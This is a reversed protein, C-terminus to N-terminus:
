NTENNSLSIAIVFPDKKGHWEYEINYKKNIQILNWITKDKVILEKNDIEIIYRNDNTIEKKLVEAYVEREHVQNYALYLIVCSTLLVSLGMIKFNRRM